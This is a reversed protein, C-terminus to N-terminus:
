VFGKVPFRIVPIITEPTTPLTIKPPILLIAFTALLSTGVITPNYRNAANITNALFKVSIGPTKLKIIISATEPLATAPPAQPLTMIM